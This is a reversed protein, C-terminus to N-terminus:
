VYPALVQHLVFCWTFVIPHLPLIIHVLRSSLKVKVGAKWNLSESDTMQANTELCWRVMIQFAVNVAIGSMCTCNM